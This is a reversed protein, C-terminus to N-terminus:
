GEIPTIEAVLCFNSTYRVRYRRANEQNWQISLNENYLRDQDLSFGMANPVYVQLWQGGTDDGIIGYRTIPQATLSGSYPGPLNAPRAKPSIWVEAEVLFNSEIQALDERAQLFKSPLDEQIVIGCAFICPFTLCVLVLVPMKRTGPVNELRQCAFLGTLFIIPFGALLALVLVVYWLQCIHLLQGAATRASVLPVLLNPLLLVGMLLFLWLITAFLPSALWLFTFVSLRPRSSFPGM